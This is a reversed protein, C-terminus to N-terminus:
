TDENILRQLEVSTHSGVIRCGDARMRSTPLQPDVDGKRLIRGTHLVIRTSLISHAMTQLQTFGARLQSDPLHVALVVNLIGLLLMFVFYMVGDIWLAELLKSKPKPVVKIKYFQLVKYLTLVLVVVEFLLIGAYPVAWASKVASKSVRCQQMNSWTTDTPMVEVSTFIGRQVVAIAPASCVITLLILFALIWRSSQWVAWTRMALVLESCIITIISLYITTNRLKVKFPILTIVASALAPYRAFIFLVRAYISRGPRWLWDLEDSSTLLWDYYILAASAVEISMSVRHNTLCHILQQLAVQEESSSM